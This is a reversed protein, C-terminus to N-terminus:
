SRENNPLRNSKLVNILHEDSAYDVEKDAAQADKLIKARQKAQKLAHKRNADRRGKLYLWSMVFGAIASFITYLKLKFNTM